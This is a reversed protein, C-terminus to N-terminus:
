VLNVKKACDLHYYVHRNGQSKPFIESNEKIKQTCRKCTIQRGYENEYRSMVKKQLPMIKRRQPM